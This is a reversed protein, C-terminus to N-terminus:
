PLLLSELGLTLGLADFGLTVLPFSIGRLLFRINSSTSSDLPSALTFTSSVSSSRSNIGTFVFGVNRGLIIISDLSSVKFM